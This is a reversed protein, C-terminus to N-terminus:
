RGTKGSDRGKIVTGVPHLVIPSSLGFASAGAEELGTQRSLGLSHDVAGYLQRAASVVELVDGM